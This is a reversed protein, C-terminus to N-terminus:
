VATEADLLGETFSRRHIPCLGLRKIAEVHAPTGYGKHQAFGYGPYKLEMKEMIRDRTVKALISAAAVSASTADAKPVSMQVIDLDLRVADIILFDPKIKMSLIATEMAKRTANLINVRDIYTHDAIGIGYSIAKERIEDYLKDRKAPSLKKSDNLGCIVVDQPLIVCAAVVPGALPGRGAEDVGGIYCFGKKRADEEIAMLARLREREKKEAELKKYYKDAIKRVSDGFEESLELLWRYADQVPMEGARQTIEKLTPKKM